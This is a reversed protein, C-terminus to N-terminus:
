WREASAGNQSRSREQLHSGEGHECWDPFPAAQTERWQGESELELDCSLSSSRFCDDFSAFSPTTCRPALQVVVNQVMTLNTSNCAGMRNYEQYGAVHRGGRPWKSQKCRSLTGTCM